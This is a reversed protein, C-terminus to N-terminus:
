KVGKEDNLINDNTNFFSVSEEADEETQFDFDDEDSDNSLIELIKEMEPSEKPGVTQPPEQGYITTINFRSQLAVVEEETAEFEEGTYVRKGKVALYHAKSGQKPGNNIYRM